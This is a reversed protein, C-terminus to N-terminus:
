AVRRRVIGILGLGLAALVVAGPAPIPEDSAIWGSGDTNGDDGGPLYLGGVHAASFFTGVGGGDISRYMFDSSTLDGGSWEITYVSTSFADGADADGFLSGNAWTFSIDYYGDGDAKFDGGSGSDSQNADTTSVGTAGDAAVGGVYTITLDSPTIDPNINFLWVKYSEDSGNLLSEMTLTVTGGNGVFTARGWPPDGSPSVAGSVEYMLEDVFQAQASPVLVGVLCIACFATLISRM